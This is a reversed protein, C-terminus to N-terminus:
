TAPSVVIDRIAAGAVLSLSISVLTPGAAILSTTLGASRSVAGFVLKM